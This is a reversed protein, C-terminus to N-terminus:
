HTQTHPRTLQLARSSTHPYPHTPPPTSLNVFGPSRFLFFLVKSSDAEAASRPTWMQQFQVRIEAFTEILVAIFVNKVLWALFFIMSMFYVVGKWTALCDMARYMIFVWGEQSAAQYVTFISIHFSEFGAYGGEDQISTKLRICKMNDPCQNSSGPSRSPDCYSDPIALDSKMIASDNTSNLVCHYNLEDGFFQVGLLGYLSMFFLLFVSVNYVQHTSRQFIANVRAQPLQLKLVVRFLRILVLPRPCRIIALFGYNAFFAENTECTASLGGPCQLMAYLEFSQLVLSAWIFFAMSADFCNWFRCFYAKNKRSNLNGAAAM